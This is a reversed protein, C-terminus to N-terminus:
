LGPRTIQASEPGNIGHEYIDICAKLFGDKVHNVVNFPNIFGRKSAFSGVLRPLAKLLRDMKMQILEKGTETLNSADLNQKYIRRIEADLNEESGIMVLLFFKKATLNKTSLIVHLVKQINVDHDPALTPYWTRINTFFRALEKDMDTEQFNYFLAYFYEDKTAQEDIQLMEQINHGRYELLGSIQKRHIEVYPDMIVPEYGYQRYHDYPNAFELVATPRGERRKVGDEKSM